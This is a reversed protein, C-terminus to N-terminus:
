ENCPGIWLDPNSPTEWSTGNFVAHPEGYPPKNFELLVGCKECRFDIDIEEETEFIFSHM